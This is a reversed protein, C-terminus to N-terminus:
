NKFRDDSFYLAAGTNLIQSTVTVANSIACRLVKIPDVIGQNMLDEVEGTLANFGLGNDSGMIEIVINDSEEGDLGSNSLLRSLPTVLAARIADIGLGISQNPSQLDEIQKFARVWSVGGGVVIGEEMASRVAHVADEARDAREKIDADNEGGVILKAIQGTLRAARQRYMNKHAENKAKMEMNDLKDLRDTIDQDKGDGGVIVLRDSGLVIKEAWGIHNHVDMQEMTAGENEAVVKGGTFLAIDRIIENFDDGTPAKAISIPANNEGKSKALSSLAEGQVDKAIFLYGGVKKRTGDKRMLARPGPRREDGELTQFIHGVEAIKSIEYDCMIIAVNELVAENHNNNTFIPHAYTSNLIMGEIYEIETEGGLSKEINIVAGKGAKKVVGSILDSMEEDYNSSVMAVKKVMPSKNTISKSHKKLHKIVEESGLEMGKCFERVNVNDEIAKVGLQVLTDAIITTTTTADGAERATKDAAFKIINAGMNEFKDDLKIWNAATAGDKTSLPIGATPHEMFVHKGDPGLTSGVVSSLKSVGEAMKKTAENGLVLHDQEM